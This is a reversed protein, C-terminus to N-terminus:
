AGTLLATTLMEQRDSMTMKVPKVLTVKSSLAQPHFYVM